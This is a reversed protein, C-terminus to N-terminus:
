RRRYHYRYLEETFGLQRYLAVAPTNTAVVGLCASEAGAHERGWALLSSMTRRSLGRRRLAPDTAVLNVCLIRDNVAGLAVSVLRGDAARLAAFAAPIVLAGLIDRQGQRAAASSGTCRAHAERWEESPTGTIEAGGDEPPHRDFDLSLVCTEDEPPAYGQADLAADLDPEAIGPIRFIAPLGAQAYLAECAAIKDRLPRTGAALPNVSNARRTHGASFRLLWGDLLVERLAPWGKLSAEEVRRARAGAAM